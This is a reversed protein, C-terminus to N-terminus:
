PGGVVEPWRFFDGSEFSDWGLLLQNSFCFLRRNLNCAGSGGTWNNASRWPRGLSGVEAGEGSEWDLCDLGTSTGDTLSGTWADFSTRHVGQEDIGIPADLVGDFLGAKSPAIRVGDVREWPGDLTLRSEADVSGDSLFAVFSEPFPLLAAAALAQCVADAGSLGDMGGSSDWTSLDGSGFESSVFALAGAASPYVLPDGAGVEFCAIRGGVCSSLGGSAWSSGMVDSNGSSTTSGGTGDDDWDNCDANGNIGASTTGTFFNGASLFAGLETVGLPTIPGQNVLDDVSAAFPVGDLRIWPGAAPLTPVGCPPSASLESDLGLVNCYADVNTDSLWARFIAGGADLGAAAARAQCFNNAAEVGTDGVEATCDGLRGSCNTSTVFVRMTAAEGAAAVLAASVVSARFRRSFFRAM